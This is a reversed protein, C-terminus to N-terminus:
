PSVRWTATAKDHVKSWCGQAFHSYLWRSHITFFILLSSSPPLSNGRDPCRSTSSFSSCTEGYPVGGPTYGAIYAFTDDSDSYHGEPEVDVAANKKRQKEVAGAEISARTRSEREPTIMGLVAKM